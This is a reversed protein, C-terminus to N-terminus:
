NKIWGQDIFWSGERTVTEFISYKPKWGLVRKAKEATAVQGPAFAGHVKAQNLFPAPKREIKNITELLIAATRFAFRPIPINILKGFTRNYIVVSAIEQLEALSTYRDSCFYFVEGKAEKKKLCLNIGKILDDVDVISMPRYSGLFKMKFGSKVLKYSGVTVANGPGLVSCPRIITIPLKKSYKGALKEMRYKSVGYCDEPIPEPEKDETLPNDLTGFGGAASSSALVIRKIEPNSLACAELLNLSGKVNIRDFDQQNYGHTVGALHIIYDMGKVLKQLGNDLINGEVIKLNKLSPYINKLLNYNTGKLIFATTAIGQEALSKSLFSGVFGNAGTILATKM